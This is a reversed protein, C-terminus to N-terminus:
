WCRPWYLDDRFDSPIKSMRSLAQAALDIQECLQRIRVPVPNGSVYERLRWEDLGLAAKRQRAEEEVESPHVMRTIGDGASSGTWERNDSVEAFRMNEGVLCVAKQPARFVMM